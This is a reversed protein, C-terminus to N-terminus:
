MYVIITYLIIVNGLSFPVQSYDEWTLNFFKVAILGFNVKLMFTRSDFELFIELLIKDGRWLPRNVRSCHDHTQWTPTKFRLPFSALALEM